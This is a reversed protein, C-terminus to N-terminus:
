LKIRDILFNILDIDEDNNLKTKKINQLMKKAIALNIRTLHKSFLKVITFLGFIRQEEKADYAVKIYVALVREFQENGMDPHLKDNWKKVHRHRELMISLQSAFVGDYNICDVCFGFWDDKGLKKLGSEIQQMIKRSVIKKCCPCVYACEDCDDSYVWEDDELTRICPNGCECRM